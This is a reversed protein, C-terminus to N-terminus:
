LSVFLVSRINVLVGCGYLHIRLRVPSFILRFFLEEFLLPVTVYLLPITTVVNLESLKM